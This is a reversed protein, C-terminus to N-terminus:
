EDGIGEVEQGTDTAPSEGTLLPASASDSAKKRKEATKRPKRTGAQEEAAAKIAELVAGRDPTPSGSLASQQLIGEVVSPQIESFIQKVQTLQRRRNEFGPLRNLYTERFVPDCQVELKEELTDVVDPAQEAFRRDISVWFAWLDRYVNEITDVREKVGRFHEGLKDIERLAKPGEVGSTTDYIVKAEVLKSSAKAEPCWLVLSGRALKHREEVEKLLAEIENGKRWRTCFANDGRSADSAVRAQRGVKFIRQYLRRARVCDLLRRAGETAAADPAATGAKTELYTLFGEDGLQILAGEDADSLGALRAARALMASAVCKAHHLFVRETLCFRMDLLDIIASVIDTRLGGKTLKICLRGTHRQFYEYVRYHGSRKEIGTAEADATIYALLDACITNGVLDSRWDADPGEPNSIAFLIPKAQDILRGYPASGMEEKLKTLVRDLRAPRDHKSLIVHEDELTHSFPLHGIDHLLATIRVNQEDEEKISEGNNKLGQLIKIAEGLCRVSHAGRTHTANPYVLYALGLQKLYFLRQFARTQTICVEAESLRVDEFPIRFRKEGMDGEVSYVAWSTVLFMPVLKREMRAANM